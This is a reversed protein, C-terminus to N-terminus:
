SPIGCKPCGHLWQGAINKTRWGDRKASAWVVTFEEGKEGDFTEDCSDCEIVVKGHQRDIM